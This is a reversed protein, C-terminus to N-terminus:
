SAAVVDVHQLDVAGAIAADVLDALQPLVDVHPGAPRSELNVDDVFDVHEGALGEVGQQLRQFLRRLVHLEDEARGFRRLDRDRDERAALPEIEGANGGRAIKSRNRCITSASPTSASGSARSTSARRAAPEIRSLWDSSSCSSDKAASRIVTASTWPMSPVAPSRAAPPSPRLVQDVAVRGGGQGFQVRGHAFADVDALEEFLEEAVEAVAHRGRGAARGFREEVGGAALLSCTASAPLRSPKCVMRAAM